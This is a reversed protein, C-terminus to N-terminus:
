AFMMWKRRMSGMRRGAPCKQLCDATEVERSKVFGMQCVEMRVVLEAVATEVPFCDETVAIWKRDFDAFRRYLYWYDAFDWDAEALGVTAIVPVVAAAVVTAAQDNSDMRFNGFWMYETPAGVVLAIEVVVVIATGIAVV